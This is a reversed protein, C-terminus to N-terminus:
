PDIKMASKGQMFTTSSKKQPHGDQESTTLYAIPLSVTHLSSYGDPYHSASGRSKVTDVVKSDCAHKPNCTLDCICPQKRIQLLYNLATIGCKKLSYNCFSVSCRSRGTRFELLCRLKIMHHITSINEQRKICMQEAIELHTGTRSLCLCVTYAARDTPTMHHLAVRNAYNM